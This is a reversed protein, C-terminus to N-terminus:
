CIQTVRSRTRGGRSLPPNHKANLSQKLHQVEEQLQVLEASTTSNITSVAPNAVLQTEIVHDVLSALEDMSTTPPSPTLVMRVTTPLCQLFLERFLVDDMATPTKDGLLQCM